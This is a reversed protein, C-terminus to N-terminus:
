IFVGVAVMVFVMFGAVANIRFFALEVNEAKKQELYLLYGTLLLFPLALL